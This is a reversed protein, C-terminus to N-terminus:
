NLKQALSKRRMQRLPRLTEGEQWSFAIKTHRGPRVFPDGALRDLLDGVAQKALAREDQAIATLRLSGYRGIQIGDFSIMSLDEPVKLHLDYAKRLAGFALIDALIFLATCEPQEKQLREFTKAGAELNFPCPYWRQNADFLLGREAFALKAGQLRAKSIQSMEESGGLVCIERHGADFLRSVATRAAEVDDTCVSDLGRLGLDKADNTVWVAPKMLSEFNAEFRASDGGLFLFGKPSALRLIRGARELEDEEEQVYHVTLIEGVQCLEEAIAEILAAYFLNHAGKAVLAIPQPGNQRMQRAKENPQFEHQRIVEEVRERTEASVHHGGNLVRSVTAVSCDAEKAIDRITLKLTEPHDNVM